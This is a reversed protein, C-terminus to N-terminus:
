TAGPQRLPHRIRRLELVHLRQDVVGPTREIVVTQQAMDIRYTLYYLLAPASLPDARFAAVCEGQPWRASPYLLGALGQQAAYKGIPQTASYDDGVLTPFAREKGRLDGFLGQARVTYVARYRVFATEPPDILDNAQRLAHWCTEARATAENFAGYWVRISGDGFRSGVVPDSAFPYDIAQSYFLGREIIGPRANRVAMEAAIAADQGARDPVLDDFLHESHRLSTINRFVQADIRSLTDLVEM